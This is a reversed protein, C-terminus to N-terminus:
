TEDDPWTELEDILEDVWTTFAETGKITKENQVRPMYRPGPMRGSGRSPFQERCLEDIAESLNEVEHGTRLGEDRLAVLIAFQMEARLTEVLEFQKTPDVLARRELIPIIHEALMRAFNIPDVARPRTLM